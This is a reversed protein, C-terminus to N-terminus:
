TMSIGLADRKSTATLLVHWTPSRLGNWGFTGTSGRAQCRKGGGFEGYVDERKGFGVPKPTGGVM